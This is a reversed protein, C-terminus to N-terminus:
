LGVITKVLNYNFSVRKGSRDSFFVVYKKSLPSLFDKDFEGFHEALVTIKNKNDMMWILLEDDQISNMLFGTHTEEDFVFLYPKHDVTIAKSGVIVNVKLTFYEKHYNLDFVLTPRELSYRCDRMFMKM